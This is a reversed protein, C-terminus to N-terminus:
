ACVPFPFLTGGGAPLSDLSISILKYLLSHLIYNLRIVVM